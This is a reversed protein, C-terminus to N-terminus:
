QVPIFLLVDDAYTCMDCNFRHHGQQKVPDPISSHLGQPFTLFDRPRGRQCAAEGWHQSQSRTEKQGVTSSPCAVDCGVNPGPVIRVQLLKAHSSCLQDHTKEVLDERKQGM